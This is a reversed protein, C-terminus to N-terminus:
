GHHSLIARSFNANRVQILTMPTLLHCFRDLSDHLSVLTTQCNFISKKLIAKEELSISERQIQSFLHRRVVLWMSISRSRHYFIKIMGKLFIVPNDPEM